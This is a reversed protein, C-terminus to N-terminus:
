EISRYKSIISSVFILIFPGIFLGSFGFLLLSGILAFFCIIPSLRSEDGAILMPRIVNDVISAIVGFIIIILAQKLGFQTLIYTACVITVPLVGIIPFMASIFASVFVIPWSRIGVIISGLTLVFAQSVATLLTTIITNYASIKSIEYILLYLPYTKTNYFFIKIEPKFLEKRILYYTMVFFFCVQLTIAPIQALERFLSGLLNDFLQSFSENIKQDFFHEKDFRFLIKSTYEKILQFTPIFIEILKIKLNEFGVAESSSKINSIILKITNIIVFFLTLLSIGIFIFVLMIKRKSFSNIKEKAGYFSLSFILSLILSKWFPIFLIAIFTMFYILNSKRPNFYKKLISNEDNLNRSIKM